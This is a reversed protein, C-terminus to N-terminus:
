MEGFFVFSIRDVYRSGQFDRGLNVQIEKRKGVEGCVQKLFGLRLIVLDRFFFLFQVFNKQLLGEINYM